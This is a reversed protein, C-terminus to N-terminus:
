KFRLKQNEWQQKLNNHMSNFDEENNIGYLKLIRKEANLYTAQEDEINTFLNALYVTYVIERHDPKCLLPQHHFEIPAIINEPFNWKEAIMAGLRTHAIGVTMSEIFNGSLGKEKAFSNIKKLLTRHLQLLVIKGLDHLIGGIYVDDVIKRLRRQRAISQAYYAVKYAHNWQDQMRKYRVGMVKQTGYSYLLSRLGRMGVLSVADNINSVKNPLMYQASNVMKLLEATLSPDRNIVKSVDSFPIDPNGLMSELEMINEPFKPISNIENAISDSIEVAQDETITNIPVKIQTLTENTKPITAFIYSDDLVGIKRLMMIMTVIGLGGSETADSFLQFAQAVNKVQRAASIRKLIRTKEEETPQIKSVTSMLFMEDKVHFGLKIYLDNQKLLDFFTERKERFKRAFSRMGKEYDAPNDINLKNNLFYIRKANAREMNDIMERLCYSLAEKIYERQLQTLFEGLTDIFYELTANNVHYAKFTLPASNTIAETIKNADVM